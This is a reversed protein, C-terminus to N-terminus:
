RDEPGSITPSRRILDATPFAGHHSSQFLVQLSDITQEALTMAKPPMTHMHASYVSACRFIEDGNVGASRHVRGLHSTAMEPDEEGPTKDQCATDNKQCRRCASALKQLFIFCLFIPVQPMQCRRKFDYGAERNLAPSFVKASRAGPPSIYSFHRSAPWKLGRLLVKKFVGDPQLAQQSLARILRYKRSAFRLVLLRPTIWQAKRM